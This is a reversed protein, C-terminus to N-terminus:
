PKVESKPAWSTQNNLKEQRKNLKKILKKGLNYTVKIKSDIYDVTEPSLTQDTNHHYYSMLSNYRKIVSVAKGDSYGTFYNWASPAVKGKFLGKNIKKIHNIKERENMIFNVLDEDKNTIIENSYLNIMEEQVIENKLIIDTGM